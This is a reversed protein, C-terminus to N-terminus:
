ESVYRLPRYVALTDICFRGKETTPEEFECRILYNGVAFGVFNHEFPHIEGTALDILGVGYTDEVSLDVVSNLCEECLHAALKGIDLDKDGEPYIDIEAYGRDPEEMVHASYGGENESSLMGMRMYGSQEEILIGDVDYRNVTIPDVDFTNLSIIGINDQMWGDPKWPADEDLYRCLYCEDKTVESHYGDAPRSTLSSTEDGPLTAADSGRACGALILLSVACAIIRRKNM